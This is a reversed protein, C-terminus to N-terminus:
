KEYKKLGESDIYPTALGINPTRKPPGNNQIYKM